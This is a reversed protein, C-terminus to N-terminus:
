IQQQSNLLVGRLNSLKSRKCLLKQKQKKKESGFKKPSLNRDPPTLIKMQLVQNKTFEEWDGDEYQVAYFSASPDFSTVTGKYWKIGDFKKM